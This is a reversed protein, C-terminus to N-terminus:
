ETNHPGFKLIKKDTRKFTSCWALNKTPHPPRGPTQSQESRAHHIKSSKNKICPMFLM